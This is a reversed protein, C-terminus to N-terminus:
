RPSIRKTRRKLLPAETLKGNKIRTQNARGSGEGGSYMQQLHNSDM